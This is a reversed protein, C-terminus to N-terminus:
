RRELHDSEGGEWPPSSRTGDLRFVGPNASSFFAHLIVPEESVVRFGHPAFRPILVSAHAELRSRDGFVRVEIAGRVVAIIEECDHVHLPVEFGPLHEEVWLALEQAGREADIVTRHRLGALPGDDLACCPADAHRFFRPTERKKPKSKSEPM